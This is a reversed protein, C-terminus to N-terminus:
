GEDSSDDRKKFHYKIRYVKAGKALTNEEESKPMWYNEEFEDLGIDDNEEWAYKKRQPGESKLYIALVVGTLMGWFHGEFSVGEKIPFIGWIMSGYLFAVMLSLAMVRKEKRLIGSVFLFGALGYIVGSMGIHFSERASIWVCLGSVLWIFTFAFVSMSRYYYRLCWGLVFVPFSNNIIHSFDKTSHLWPSFFIGKLGEMKRPYVGYNSWSIGNSLQLYHVVWMIALILIPFWLPWIERKLSAM